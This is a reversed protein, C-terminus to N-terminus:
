RPRPLARLTNSPLWADLAGWRIHTYEGDSGIVRVRAGEPLPSESALAIHRADAPRAAPAVLVAEERGLRDSRAFWACAVLLAAAAGAIAATITAGIRARRAQSTRRVTLALAFAISAILALVAWTDDPLLRAVSEGLSPHQEVEVPEGAHTRRRAVESRIAALARTADKALLDTRTLDRAEEFGHAARGLDGPVEAIRARHAYALGRDYSVAADLVGRDALAEFADIAEKPREAVLAGVGRAFLADDEPSL